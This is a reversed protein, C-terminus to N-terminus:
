EEKSCLEELFTRYQTTYQLSDSSEHNLLKILLKRVIESNKTKEDVKDLIKKNIAM